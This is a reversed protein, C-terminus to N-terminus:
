RNKIAQKLSQNCNSQLLKEHLDVLTQQHGRTIDQLTNLDLTMLDFKYQTVAKSYNSTLSACRDKDLVPDSLMPKVHDISQDISKDITAPLRQLFIRKRLIEQKEKTKLEDATAQWIM